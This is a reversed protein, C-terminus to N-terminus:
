TKKGKTKRKAKRIEKDIMKLIRYPCSENMDECNDCFDLSVEQRCENTFEEVEFRIRDLTDWGSDKVRM